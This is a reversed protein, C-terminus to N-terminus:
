GGEAEGTSRKRLMKQLPSIDLELEHERKRLKALEPGAYVQGITDGLRGYREDFPGVFIESPLPRKADPNEYVIARLVRREHQTRNDELLQMFEGIPLDRGEELEKQAVLVRFEMQGLPFRELAIIASITTNQPTKFHPHVMKGGALFVSPVPSPRDQRPLGVPVRFGVNGLMAGFVFMPSTVDVLNIQENFLVLSCCEGDYDRFKEAAKGIKARISVYPDYAGGGDNLIKEDAAFEKVEFWLPQGKYFVRYDVLKTTGPFVPHHEPAPWGYEALYEEFLLESVNQKRLFAALERESIRWAKHSIRSGRLKRSRLWRYVTDVTLQLREAVQEPTIYADSSDVMIRCYGSYDVITLWVGGGLVGWM